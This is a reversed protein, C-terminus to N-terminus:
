RVSFLANRTRQVAMHNSVAPPSFCVRRPRLGKHPVEVDRERRVEFASPTPALFLGAPPFELLNQTTGPGERQRVPPNSWLASRKYHEPKDLRSEINEDTPVCAQM